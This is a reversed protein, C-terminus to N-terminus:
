GGYGKKAAAEEGAELVRDVASILDDLELDSKGFAGSAHRSYVGELIIAIKWYGLALYFDLESLDRGSRAAYEQALESHTPFGESATASSLHPIPEEGPEVWYALMMGADALPDGLTSLEWDLVAKIDGDVYGVITNDLRFDGHVITAPGEDPIHDRLWVHLADVAPVERTKWSDWQRAWRHLQREVYGTKRGLHGLAVADPDVEHLVALTGALALGLPRRGEEPLLEMVQSRDRPVWGDVHRMVYFAAGTVAHDECFGLVEPVPVLTDMLAKMVAYERGVDHASPRLFSLPPRRLVFRGERSDAVLYTLNSHGGPIISFELPPKVGPVHEIFWRTVNETKIGPVDGTKM